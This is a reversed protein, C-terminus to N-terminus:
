EADHLPTVSFSVHLPEGDKGQWNLEAGQSSGTHLQAELLASAIPLAQGLAEEETWGFMQSAGRSWMRVKDDPDLAVMAFPCEEVMARLTAIRHRVDDPLDSRESMDMRKM